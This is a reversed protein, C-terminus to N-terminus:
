SSFIILEVVLIFLDYELDFKIEWMYWELFIIIFLYVFM